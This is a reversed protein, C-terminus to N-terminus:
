QGEERPGQNEKATWIAILNTCSGTHGRSLICRGDLHKFKTCVLTYPCQDDEEHFISASVNSVTSEVEDANVPKFQKAGERHPLYVFLCFALAGDEAGCVFAVVIAVVNPTM